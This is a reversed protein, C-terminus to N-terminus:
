EFREGAVAAMADPTRGHEHLAQQKETFPIQVDPWIPEGDVARAAAAAPARAGARRRLDVTNRM